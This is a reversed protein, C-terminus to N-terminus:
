RVLRHQFIKRFPLAASDSGRVTPLPRALVRRERSVRVRMRLKAQSNYRSLNLLHDYDIIALRLM